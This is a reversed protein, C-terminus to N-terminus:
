QLVSTVFFSCADDGRLMCTPQDIEIREGYFEATGLVLGELLSCLRRESIYSISVGDAGLARVQLRPPAAGPLSARLVEHIREEVDLLFRRTGASQDYFDPRLQRFITKATFRGFELLITSREEGTASEAHEVLAEFHEDPYVDGPGFQPQDRWISEASRPYATSTFRHFSTFILGHVSSINFRGRAM